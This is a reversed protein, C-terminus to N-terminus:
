CTLFAVFLSVFLFFYLYCYIEIFRAIIIPGSFWGDIAFRGIMYLFSKEDGPLCPLTLPHGIGGERSYVYFM